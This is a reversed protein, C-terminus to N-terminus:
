KKRVLNIYKNVREIIDKNKNKLQNIRNKLLHVLNDENNQKQIPLVQSPYKCSNFSM